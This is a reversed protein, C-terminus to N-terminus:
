TVTITGLTLGFVVYVNTQRVTRPIVYLGVSQGTDGPENKGGVWSFKTTRDSGM